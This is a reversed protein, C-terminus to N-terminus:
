AQSLYPEPPNLKPRRNKLVSMKFSPPRLLNFLQFSEAHPLVGTVRLASDSKALARVLQKAANRLVPADSESPTSVDVSRFAYKSDTISEILTHVDRALTAQHALIISVLKLAEDGSFGAVRVADKIDAASLSKFDAIARALADRPWLHTFINELHHQVFLGVFEVWNEGSVFPQFIKAHDWSVPMEGAYGVNFISTSWQRFFVNAVLLAALASSSNRHPMSMNSMNRDTVARVLYYSQLDVDNLSKFTVITKVEESHIRRVDAINVRGQALLYALQPYRPDDKKVIWYIGAEDQILGEHFMPKSAGAKLGAVISEYVRRSLVDGVPHYRHSTTEAKNRPAEGPWLVVRDRQYGDTKWEPDTPIHFGRYGILDPTVVSEVSFDEQRDRLEFDLQQFEFGSAALAHLYQAKV